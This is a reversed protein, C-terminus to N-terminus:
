KILWVVSCKHDTLLIGSEIVIFDMMRGHPFVIDEAAFIFDDPQSDYVPSAFGAVTITDGAVPGFSEIRRLTNFDWVYLFGDSYELRQPLYFRSSFGDIFAREGDLGAFYRLEEQYYVYIVGLKSNGIYLMGEDSIALSSSGQPLEAITSYIGHPTLAHLYVGGLGENREVFYLTGDQSFAFDEVASHVANFTILKEANGSDDIRAIAFIYDNEDLWPDTIIYLNEGYTRVRAASIHAPSINITETTTDRIRRIFGADTIYLIGTNTLAISEPSFFDMNRLDGDISEHGTFTGAFVSVTRGTQFKQSVEILNDIPEVVRIHLTISRNRYQGFLFTEGLNLGTVLTGDIRAIDDGKLEWVVRNIDFRAPSGDAMYREIDLTASQQLSLTLVDPHLTLTASSEAAFVTYGWFFSGLSIFIALCAAFAAVKRIFLLRAMKIKSGKLARIDEQLKSTSSYRKTPEMAICKRIIECLERSVKQELLDLNDQMPSQGTALEFMIAGLSYIDTRVDIDWSGVHDPIAGFRAKILQAYKEKARENFQEPAAYKATLAERGEEGINRSIGFDVLVLRNAHTLMINGPKLDLHLIPSPKISSLYDLVHALQELWDVLVPQNIEVGESLLESLSIGDILTEILYVGEEKYIVDIIKPLSIHNLQKLIKEENVLKGDKSSIFKLFWPNGLKISNVEFTRSMNGGGIERVISYSGALVSSDFAGENQNNGSIPARGLNLLDTEGAKFAHEFNNEIMDINAQNSTKTVFHDDTDTFTNLTMAPISKSLTSTLTDNSETDHKLVKAYVRSRKYSAVLYILFGLAIISFSTGIIFLIHDLYM